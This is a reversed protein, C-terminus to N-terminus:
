LFGLISGVSSLPHNQSVPEWFLLVSVTHLLDSLLVCYGPSHASYLSLISTLLFIWSAGSYVVVEDRGHLCKSLVKSLHNPKSSTISTSRWWSSSKRTPVSDLLRSAGERACHPPLYGCVLFLTRLLFLWEPVEIRYERNIGPGGSLLHRNNWGVYMLAASAVMPSSCPWPRISGPWKEHQYCVKANDM